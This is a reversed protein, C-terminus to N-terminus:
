PRGCGLDLVVDGAKLPGASFPNGVASSSEWLVDPLTDLWRAEYGLVRANEKGKGWGFDKDPRQALETYLKLVADAECSVSAVSEKSM